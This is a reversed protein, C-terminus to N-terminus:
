ICVSAVGGPKLVRYFEEVARETGPTQHIVGNSIVYDFSNDDYPISEVSGSRINGSLGFLGISKQTMKVASDSIDIAYM